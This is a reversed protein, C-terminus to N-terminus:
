YAGRGLLVAPVTLVLLKLDLLFSQRHIYDLDMEVQRHFPVDGRGSVQWICTLGPTVGLRRREVLTYQAVERPVAPRPGVLTMQGTLVCWLQPLEDVSTRRLIRGIWTVRPDRKLKFTVGAQHHNQHLVSALLREANPVMSRFKPFRFERGRKGVRTQWFLVSGGDTAKILVAVLAFLPALAVLLALAVTVDLARKSGVRASRSLLLAYKKWQFRVARRLTWGGDAARGTPGAAGFLRVVDLAPASVAAAQVDPTRYDVTVVM